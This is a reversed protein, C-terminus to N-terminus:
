ISQSVYEARQLSRTNLSDFSFLHTGLRRLTNVTGMILLIIEM